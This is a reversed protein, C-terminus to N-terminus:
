KGDLWFLLAFHVVSTAILFVGYHSISIEFFNKYYWKFASIIASKEFAVSLFSFIKKFFMVLSKSIKFILSSDRYACKGDASSLFNAFFSKETIKGWIIGCKRGIKGLISAEFWKSFSSIVFLIFNVIASNKM